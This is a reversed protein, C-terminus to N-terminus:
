TLLPPTSARALGVLDDRNWAPAVGRAALLYRVRREVEWGFAEALGSLIVRLYGEAPARVPVPRGATLTLMPVGDRVGLGVVTDYLGAGVLSGPSLDLDTGPPRRTEQAVLDGVQDRTLLYARAALVGDASPDYVAVGGGWVTSRGGFAMAGPVCLELVARPASGDRCGSYTRTAGPPRGGALYCRLRSAKLNSGYAVYWVLDQTRRRM